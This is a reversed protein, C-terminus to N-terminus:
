EEEPSTQSALSQLEEASPVVASGFVQDFHATFATVYEPAATYYMNEFNNSQANISWNFSGTMLLKEDFVAFKHHMVGRGDQGRSWRFKVGNESLYATMYSQSAQVRDTVVEVDVGRRRAAVLAEGIASSYFSFVAAKISRRAFRAATIIDEETRGAPSFSYGPLMAGNFYVPRSRDEPPPGFHSQSYSPGPGDEPARSFRWMWDFYKAYGDVTNGDRIFVMNEHNANDATLAWNFSGASVMKGDYIGLKNHMIGYSGAGRLTRVEVGGAMLSKLEPSVKSGLAHTENSIVRVKLGRKHADLIAAAVRPLTFGYVAVDLTEACGYIASAILNEVDARDSFVFPPIAAATVTSSQPPQSHPQSPQAPQAPFQPDPLPQAPQPPQLPIADGPVPGGIIQPPAPVAPPSPLEGMDGTVPMPPLAPLVPTQQSFATFPLAAMLLAFVPGKLYNIGM